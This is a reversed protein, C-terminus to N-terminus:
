GHNDRFEDEVKSFYKTEGTEDWEKFMVILMSQTEDNVSFRLEPLRDEDSFNQYKECYERWKEHLDRFFGKAKKQYGFMGTIKWNALYLHEENWLQRMLPMIISDDSSLRNRPM